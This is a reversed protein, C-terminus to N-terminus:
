EALASQNQKSQIMLSNLVTITEKSKLIKSIERIFEEKNNAESQPKPVSDESLIIEQNLARTFAILPNVKTKVKIVDKNEPNHNYIFVPYPLVSHAVSLLSYRYDDLHPAVLYLTHFIYTKHSRTVVDGLILGNTKQSLKESQQNLITLPVDNNENLNIEPWLDIDTNTM